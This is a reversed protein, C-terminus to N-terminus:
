LTLGLATQEINVVEPISLKKVSATPRKIFDDQFQPHFSIPVFFDLPRVKNLM